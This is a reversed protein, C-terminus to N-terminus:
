HGPIASQRDFQQSLFRLSQNTINGFLPETSPEFRGRDCRGVRTQTGVDSAGTVDVAHLEHPSTWGIPTTMKVDHRSSIQAVGCILNINRSHTPGVCARLVLETESM